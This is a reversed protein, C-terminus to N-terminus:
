HPEYQMWCLENVIKEAYGFLGVLFYLEPVRSAGADCWPQQDDSKPDERIHSGHALRLIQSCPGSPRRFLHEQGFQAAFPLASWLTLKGM